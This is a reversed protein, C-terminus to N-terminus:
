DPSKIVCIAKVEGARSRLVRGALYPSWLISYLGSEHTPEHKRLADIFDQDIEVTERDSAGLPRVDCYDFSNNSWLFLYDRETVPVYIRLSNGRAVRAGGMV